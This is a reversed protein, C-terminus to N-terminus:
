VIPHKKEFVAYHFQIQLQERHLDEEKPYSETTKKQLEEVKFLVTQCSLRYPEDQQDRQQWFEIEVENKPLLLHAGSLCELQCTGCTGSGGCSHHIKLGKDLLQGLLGKQDELELVRSTHTDKVLVKLKM